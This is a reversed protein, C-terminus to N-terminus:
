ECRFVAGYDYAPGVPGFLPIWLQHDTPNILAMAVRIEDDRDQDRCPTQSSALPTASGGRFFDIQFESATPGPNDPDYGVVMQSEYMRNKITGQDLGVAALRGGERVAAQMSQARFFTWGFVIIGFLLLILVPSILALEVASAGREQRWRAGM